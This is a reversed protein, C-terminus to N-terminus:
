LMGKTTQTNTTLNTPTIDGGRFAYHYIALGIGHAYDGQSCVLTPDNADGSEQANWVVFPMYGQWRLCLLLWGNEAPTFAIITAKQKELPLGIRVLTM